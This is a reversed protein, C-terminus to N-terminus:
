SGGGGTRCVVVQGEAFAPRLRAVVRALADYSRGLVSGGSPTHYYFAEEVTMGCRGLLAGLTVPTYLAVHDPHVLERGFLTNLPIKISLGNPTSLVLRASPGSSRVVSALGDVFAGATSVHEIVDGALVVDPEFPPLSARGAEDSVDAITYDGGLRELVLQVAAADIDVGHLASAHRLLQEHLLTGDDLRGATLPADACGVHLVRRGSCLDVLLADRDRVVPGQVLSHRFFAAM